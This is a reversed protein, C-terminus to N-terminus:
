RSSGFARIAKPARRPRSAEPIFRQKATRMVEGEVEIVEALDVQADVDHAGERRVIGLERPQFDRLHNRRILRDIREILVRARAGGLLVTAIVKGRGKDFDEYFSIEGPEVGPLAQTPDDPNLRVAMAELHFQELIMRLARYALRRPYLVNPHV